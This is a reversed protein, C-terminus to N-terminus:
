RESTGPWFLGALILIVGAIIGLLVWNPGDDGLILSPAENESTPDYFFQYQATQTDGDAALETHTVLYTGPTEIPPFEVVAIRDGVELKTEGVAVAAGDPGEVTIESSSVTAFFSIQVRDITGGYAIGADPSRQWVETHAGAPAAFLALFWCCFALSFFIRRM